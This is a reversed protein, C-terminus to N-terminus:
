KDKKKDKTSDYDYRVSKDTKPDLFEKGSLDTFNDCEIIASDPVQVFFLFLICM